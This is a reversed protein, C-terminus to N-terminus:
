SGTTLDKKTKADEKRHDKDQRLDEVQQGAAVLLDAVFKENKDDQNPDM